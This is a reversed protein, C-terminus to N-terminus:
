FHVIGIDKVSPARKTLGWKALGLAIVTDDHCGEPANYTTNGHRTVEYEYIDLENLLVPEDPLELERQELSISLGEILARKSKNTFGFPIVPVGAGVLDDYIPDGAGTADLVVKARTKRHAEIIRRKQLPWSIQNFRDFYTTKGDRSLGHLM